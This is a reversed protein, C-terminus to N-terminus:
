LRDVTDIGPKVSESSAELCYVELGVTGGQSRGDTLWTQAVEAKRTEATRHRTAVQRLGYWFPCIHGQFKRLEYEMCTAGWYGQVPCGRPHLELREDKTNFQVDAKVKGAM